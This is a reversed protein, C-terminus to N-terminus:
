HCAEMVVVNHEDCLPNNKSKNKDHEKPRKTNLDEAQLNEQAGLLQPGQQQGESHGGSHQLADQQGEAGLARPEQEDVEFLLLLSAFTCVSVVSSGSTSMVTSIRSM